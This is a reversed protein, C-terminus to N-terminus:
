PKKVGLGIACSPLSSMNGEADQPWLVYSNTSGYFDERPEFRLNGFKRYEGPSKKIKQYANWLTGGNSLQDEPTQVYILYWCMTKNDVEVQLECKGNGDIQYSFDIKPQDKDSPSHFEFKKIAGYRGEKDFARTYIVYDTDPDSSYSWIKDDGPIRRLTPDEGSLYKDLTEVTITKDVEASVYLLCFYSVDGTTKLKFGGFKAASVMDVVEIASNSTMNLGSLDPSLDEDDNGCAGVLAVFIASLCVYAIFEKM